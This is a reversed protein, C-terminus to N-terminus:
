GDRRVGSLVDHLLTSEDGPSRVTQNVTMYLAMYNSPSFKRLNGLKTAILSVKEVFNPPTVDKSVAFALLECFHFDYKEGIQLLKRGQFNRAIHYAVEGRRICSTCTHLRSAIACTCTSVYM